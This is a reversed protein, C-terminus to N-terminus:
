PERDTDRDRVDPPVFMRYNSDRVERVFTDIIPAPIEYVNLVRSFILVSTEFEEPVVVSAGADYLPKLEQVYRTRILLFAQPNLRRVTAAIRRTAVPDSVAVVVVRAKRIGVHELVAEQSADGYWIPTGKRREAQVVDPNMEIIEYPICGTQAAWALNRGNVGYGIIVLHGEHEHKGTAEEGKGEVLRAPLPLRRAGRLVAPAARYMLPTLAMTLISVALFLQFSDEDMLGNAVGVEALIFSFEGVQSLGLGVLVMTRLPFGLAYTALAGISAKLALVGVTLGAVTWPFALVTRVDLLMGISIFFLTTFIDKFPLVYGLAQHSYESESIIIGALFAGLALSLGAVSSAWAVALCIFVVSLLFLERDRTRAILHLVRPVGFRAAVITATLIGVGTALKSLSGGGMEAGALVPILLMMPVVALDQYILIALSTRGHPSDVEGRIQLMKIAIATSSLTFLFASFIGQSFSLGAAWAIVLALLVTFLLQLSGGVFVRRRILNLQELSFEIGLTFLLLVVGVEAMVHVADLEQVLRLGYPGLLVGTALFGVITPIRLRTCLFLVVVSLGFIQLIDALIPIEM